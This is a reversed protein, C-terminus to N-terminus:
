RRRLQSLAGHWVQRTARLWRRRHAPAALADRTRTALRALRTRVPRAPEPLPLATQRAYIKWKAYWGPALVIALLLLPVLVASILVQQGEQEHRRDAGRRRGPIAARRPAGGPSVGTLAASRSGVPFPGTGAGAHPVRRTHPWRATARGVAPGATRDRVLPTVDVMTGRPTAGRVRNTRRDRRGAPFPRSCVWPLLWHPPPDLRHRRTLHGTFLCGHAAVETGTYGAGVVVFTRRATREYLGDAIDALELQRTLHDRLYLAEPLGRFGHAYESTGPVPLPKNGSGAALVLRDYGVERQTDEADRWGIRRAAPDITV